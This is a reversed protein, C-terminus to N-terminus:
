EENNPAADNVIIKKVKQYMFSIILLLIGLCFFAAIKGTQPIDIIDFLFLKLLTLTFLSLSVIRMPRRKYRMGLWMLVFSSLGWLIPLGTKVYITDIKIISVTKSYFLLNSLLSVELSIFLVVAASILWTFFNKMGEDLTTQCQCIVQYFLLGIILASLWHATFHNLLLNKHELMGDLLHFFNPMMAIYITICILLAAMNVYGGFKFTTVKASVFYYLYVFAPTYLM